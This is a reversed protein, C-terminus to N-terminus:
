DSGVTDIVSLQYLNDVEIYRLDLCLSSNISWYCMTSVVLGLLLELM